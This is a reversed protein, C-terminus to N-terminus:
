RVGHGKGAELPLEPDCPKAHGTLKTEIVSGDEQTGKASEPTGKLCLCNGTRCFFTLSAEQGQPWGQGANDQCSSGFGTCRVTGVRTDSWEAARTEPENREPGIPNGPGGPGCPSGPDGPSLPKGPGGPLCPGGPGGPSSRMSPGRWGAAWWPVQPLCKVRVTMKWSTIRRFDDCRRIHETRKM